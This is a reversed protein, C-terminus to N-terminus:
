ATKKKALIYIPHYTLPVKSASGFREVYKESFEQLDRRTWVSTRQSNPVKGSVGTVGTQKLHYLIDLPHNFNLSILEEGAYLIDYYPSLLEELEGKSLYPLGSGTLERIEKMNEKGFSSFALYGEPALLRYCKQFFDAPSDFWQLASCSTILSKGGPFTISEADGPLFTLQEKPLDSFCHKVEGCLDNLWIHKPHLTQLLMRSYNGTGCGFEIIEPCPLHIYQQILGTMKRAIEKQVSAQDTYTGIAKTFRKAVREKQIQNHMISHYYVM